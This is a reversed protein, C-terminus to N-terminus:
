MHERFFALTRQWSDAAAQPHYSGLTDNFFSHGAGPYIKVDHPINFDDLATDLKRGSRASWDDEPYTVHEAQLSNSYMSTVACVDPEFEALTREFLPVYRDEAASDRERVELDLDLIRAEHGRSGLWSALTTLGLPPTVEAAPLLPPQLLLVRM